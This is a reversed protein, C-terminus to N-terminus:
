EGKVIEFLRQGGFHADNPNWENVRVGNRVVFPGSKIKASLKLKDFCDNVMHNFEERQEWTPISTRKYGAKCSSGIRGRDENYGHKTTDIRFSCMRLGIKMGTRSLAAANSIFGQKTMAKKLLQELKLMTDTSPVEGKNTRIKTARM